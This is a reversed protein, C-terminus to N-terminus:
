HRIHYFQRSPGSIGLTTFRVPQWGDWCRSAIRAQLLRQRCLVCRETNDTDILVARSLAALPCNGHKHAAAPLGSSACSRLATRMQGKTWGGPSVCSHIHLLLPIMSVPSFGTGTGSQGGCIECASGQSRVQAEVTLLRRSVVQATARSIMEDCIPGQHCPRVLSPNMSLARLVRLLFSLRM